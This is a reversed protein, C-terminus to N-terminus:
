AAVSVLTPQLFQYTGHEGYDIGLGSEKAFPFPIGVDLAGHQNVWANGVDLREALALALARGVDRSWVSGGLGLESRNARALADEEDAFALIPLIPGFQEAAVVPADDDVGDVLTLPMFLGTDPAEGEFLIRGGRALTDARLAQLKDWQPKNQIPGYEVGDAFGDGVRLGRMAAIMAEVLPQKISEHAYVRKVAACFQGTTWFSRDVITRATHEVDADALVIAADNGGLELTVRKLTGAASAQIRKGVEVSGTFSVKRVLPHAVLAAGMADDGALVNLLGDPLCGISLEGVALTTLPTFPSPKWIVSDGAILANAVKALGLGVPSNWAVIAAAVGLPRWRLETLGRGPADFRETSPRFRGILRLSAAGREIEWRAHRLPKGQELTLLRALEDAAGTIRDAFANMAAERAEYGTVSWRVFAAQASEAALDLDGVDALPCDGVPSGNSPNTVKLRSGNTRRGGNVINTFDTRM